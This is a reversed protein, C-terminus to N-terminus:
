LVSYIYLVKELICAKDAACPQPASRAMIICAELKPCGGAVGAGVPGVAIGVDAGLKVNSSLLAKVGRDSMVLLVVEIWV